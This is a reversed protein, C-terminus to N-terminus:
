RKGASSRPLLSRLTRLKIQEREILLPLVKMSLQYSFIYHFEVAVLKFASYSM